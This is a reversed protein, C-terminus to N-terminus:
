SGFLWGRLLHLPEFRVLYALDEGDQWRADRIRLHDLPLSSM